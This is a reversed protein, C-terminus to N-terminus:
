MDVQHAQALLIPIGVGASGIAFHAYIHIVVQILDVQACVGAVKRGDSENLQRLNFRSNSRSIHRGRVCKIEVTPLIQPGNGEELSARLASIALKLCTM